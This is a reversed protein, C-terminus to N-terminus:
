PLHMLSIKARLRYGVENGVTRQSLLIEEPKLDIGAEEFALRLAARIRTLYVRLSARTM